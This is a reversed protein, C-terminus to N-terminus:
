DQLLEVSGISVRRKEGFKQGVTPKEKDFRPPLIPAIRLTLTDGEGNQSLKRLTATAPGYDAYDLNNTSPHSNCAMQM